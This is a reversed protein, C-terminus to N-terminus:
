MVGRDVRLGLPLPVNMGHTGELLGLKKGSRSSYVVVVELSSRAANSV